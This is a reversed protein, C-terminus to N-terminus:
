ALARAAELARTNTHVMKARLDLAIAAAVLGFLDPNSEQLRDLKDREIRWVRAPQDIFVDASAAEEGLMSMEGVFHGPGIEGLMVGNVAYRAEGTSIYTLWNPKQGQRTLRYGPEVDTWDGYDFLARRLGPTGGRFYRAIMRREEDSFKARRDRHWLLSIQVVNVVILLGEWFVGVVNSLWIWDYAIGTVASAVLFVRLLLMRRMLSSVILFVYSLHGVFGETLFGLGIFESM